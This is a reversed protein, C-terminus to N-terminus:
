KCIGFMAVPQRIFNKKWGLLTFFSSFFFFLMKCGIVRLVPFFFFFHSFCIFTSIEIQLSKQIKLVFCVITYYMVRFIDKKKVEIRNGFSQHYLQKSIKIYKFTMNLGKWIIHELWLFFFFFNFSWNLCFSPPSCLSVVINCLVM